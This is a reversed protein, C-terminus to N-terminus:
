RSKCQWDHVLSTIGLNYTNEVETDPAWLVEAQKGALTYRKAVEGNSLMVLRKNSDIMERLTPWSYGNSVHSYDALEPVQELVPRLEDSSLTSEFLLSIVANRDKQMYAVFERLVDSLLPADAWCAGIAPLHCVRVRKQGNYDGVDMHIDLMFGRIGRELQPTIADLYANHATVWTYQDFPRTFDNVGPAAY